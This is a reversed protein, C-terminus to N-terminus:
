LKKYKKSSWWFDTFSSLYTTPKSYLLSFGIMSSIVVFYALDM